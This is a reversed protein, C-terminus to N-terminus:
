SGTAYSKSYCDILFLPLKEELAWILRFSHDAVFDYVKQICSNTRHYQPNNM